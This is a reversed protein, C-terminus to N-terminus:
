FCDNTNVRNKSNLTKTKINGNRKIKLLKIGQVRIENKLFLLFAKEKNLNDRFYKRYIPELEDKTRNFNIITSVNGDFKLMYTGSSSIMMGYVASTSIDNYMSYRLIRLFKIIDTHSFMRIPQNLQPNGNNDYGDIFDNLHTHVYGMTNRSHVNIICNGTKPDASLPTFTGDKNVGYGSEHKLNTKKRLEEIIAQLKPNQLQVDAKECLPNQPTVEKVDGEHSVQPLNGCNVNKGNNDNLCDIYAQVDKSPAIYIDHPEGVGGSSETSVMKKSTTSSNNGSFDIDPATVEQEYCFSLVETRTFPKGKTCHCDSENYHEPACNCRYSYTVVISTCNVLSSNPNNGIVTETADKNLVTPIIIAKGEQPAIKIIYASLSENNTREIFLRQIYKKNAEENSSIVPVSYTTGNELYTPLIPAETVTYSEKNSSNGKTKVSTRNNKVCFSKYTETKMFDSLSMSKLSKENNENSLFEDESINNSCSYILFILFILSLSKEFFNQPKM